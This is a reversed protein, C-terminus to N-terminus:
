YDVVCNAGATLPMLLVLVGLVQESDSREEFREVLSGPLESGDVPPSFRARTSRWLETQVFSERWWQRWRHLTKRSVGVLERMASARKETIGQVMASVLVVAAALYVRRGLFRLSPPTVRRRCGERCCCFSERVSFGDPLGIPEGRPKRLYAARHLKGGCSCGKNRYREALDRDFLLLALFFSSDQLIKQWL